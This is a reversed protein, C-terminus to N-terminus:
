ASEERQSSTPHDAPEPGSDAEAVLAEEAPALAETTLVPAAPLSEADMLSAIRELTALMQTREWDALRKLEELFRDQLPSPAERLVEAGRTTLTCIVSRRDSASRERRVLGAREMRNLIGTVTPQSLNIARALAGVGVPGLRALERLAVLQPGSVHHGRILTRSHLDVARVIRRIATLIEDELVDPHM